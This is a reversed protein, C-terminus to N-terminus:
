LKITVKSYFCYPAKKFCVIEDNMVEFEGKWTCHVDILGNLSIFFDSSDSDAPQYRFYFIYNM